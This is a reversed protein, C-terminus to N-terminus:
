ISSLFEREEYFESRYIFMLRVRKQGQGEEVQSKQGVFGFGREYLLM